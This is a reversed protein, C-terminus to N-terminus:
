SSVLRGIRNKLRQEPRVFFRSRVVGVNDRDDPSLKIWEKETMVVLPEDKGMSPKQDVLSDHDPFVRHRAMHIGEDELMNLLDNPRALTTWLEIPQSRCRDTLERNQQWIGEFVYGHRLQRGPPVPLVSAHTGLSDGDDPLTTTKLSVLDARHLASVPERLPGAPLEGRELEREGGILVIDLDRNLRRHQFGDDLVFCDADAQNLIETGMSWRDVGVGLPVGPFHHHILAAEDGYTRPDVPEPGLVIGEGTGQGRKLVAPACEMEDLAELLWIVFSTKGTGGISLNGVSIVPRDLSRRRMVQVSQDVSRALKYLPVFPILFRFLARDLWGDRPGFYFKKMFRDLTRRLSNM